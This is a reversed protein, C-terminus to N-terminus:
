RFFSNSFGLEIRNSSEISQILATQRLTELVQPSQGAFLAQKGRYEGLLRVTQLLRQSIPQKAIFDGGFSGQQGM